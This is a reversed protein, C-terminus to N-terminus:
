IELGLADALIRTFYIVPIEIEKEQKLNYMCLPCATIIKEAGFGAASDKIEWSLRLAHDKNKISTYAGCCENRYPYYVPKGGIAEIFDEMISPNEPDDFAMQASPRLLLCGYYPATKVDKVPETKVKQATGDAPDEQDKAKRATQAKEVAEKIKDFGIEDRLLELYHIVKAEGRYPIENNMYNNIRDCEPGGERMMLNVRKLVHHCASCVTVLAQGKQAAEMLARVSALKTALEDKQMTYVGGCCQWEEIEELECGLAKASERACIDLEKAKYKLTCGPFYSYKM